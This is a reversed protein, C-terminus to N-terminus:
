GKPPLFWKKRPRIAGPRQARRAMVARRLAEDLGGRDRKGNDDPLLSYFLQAFNRFPTDAVNGTEAYATLYATAKGGAAEFLDALYILRREDDFPRQRGPDSPLFQKLAIVTERLGQLQHELGALTVPFAQAGKVSTGMAWHVLHYMVGQDWQSAQEAQLFAKEIQELCERFLKPRATKRLRLDDIWFIALTLLDVRQKELFTVGGAEELAAFQSDTIQFEESPVPVAVPQLVPPPCNPPIGRSSRSRKPM